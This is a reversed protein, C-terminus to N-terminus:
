SREAAAARLLRSIDRRLEAAESNSESDNVNGVGYREVLWCILKRVGARDEGRWEGRDGVDHQTWVDEYTLLRV